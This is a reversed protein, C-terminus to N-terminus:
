LHDAAQGLVPGGGGGLQGAAERDGPLRHHLVERRQAVGPEHGAPPRAAPPAGPERRGRQVLRDAPDGRDASLPVIPQGPQPAMQATRSGDAAGAAPPPAMASSHLSPRKGIPTSSTDPGTASTSSTALWAM